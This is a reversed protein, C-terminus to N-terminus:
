LRFSGLLPGKKIRSAATKALGSVGCLKNMWTHSAPDKWGFGLMNEQKSNLFALRRPQLLQGRSAEGTCESCKTFTVTEVKWPARAPCASIEGM